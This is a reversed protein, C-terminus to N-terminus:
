VKEFIEKFDDTYVVVMQDIGEEHTVKKMLCGLPYQGNVNITIIDVVTYIKNFVIHRYKIKGKM